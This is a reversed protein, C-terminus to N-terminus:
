RHTFGCVLAFKFDQKGINPVAQLYQFVLPQRGEALVNIAQSAQGRFILLFACLDLECHIYGVGGIDRYPSRLGLRSESNNNRIEFM